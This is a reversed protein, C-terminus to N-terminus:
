LTPNKKNNNLIHPCKQDFQLLFCKIKKLTQDNMTEIVLGMFFHALTQQIRKRKCHLLLFVATKLFRCRLTKYIYFVTQTHVFPWFMFSFTEKSFYGYVHPHPRINSGQLAGVTLGTVNDIPFILPIKVEQFLELKWFDLFPEDEKTM